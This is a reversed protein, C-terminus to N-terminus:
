LICIFWFTFFPNQNFKIHGHFSNTIGRRQVKDAGLKGTSKLTFSSSFNLFWVHPRHPSKLPTGPSKMSAPLYFTTHCHLEWARTLERMKSFGSSEGRSVPSVRDSSSKPSWHFVPTSESLQSSAAVLGLSGQPFSTHKSFSLSSKSEIVATNLPMKFVGYSAGVPQGRCPGGTRVQRGCSGSGPRCVSRWGLM